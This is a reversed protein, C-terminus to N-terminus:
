RTGGGRITGVVNWGKKLFEAAMAHGLGRSAGILLITRRPESSVATSMPSHRETTLNVSSIIHAGTHRAGSADFDFYAINIQIQVKDNRQIHARSDRSHLNISSSFGLLIAITTCVDMAVVLNLDLDVNCVKIKI